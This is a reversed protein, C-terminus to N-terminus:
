AYSVGEKLVARKGYIGCFKELPDVKGVTLTTLDTDTFTDGEQIDVNYEFIIYRVLDFGIGQPKEQPNIQSGSYRSIRAVRTLTQPVAYPNETEYIGSAGTVKAKRSITLITPNENILNRHALRAQKLLERNNAM